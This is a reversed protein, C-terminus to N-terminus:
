ERKRPSEAASTPFKKWSDHLSLKRSTVVNASVSDPRSPSHPLEPRIGADWSFAWESRCCSVSRALRTTGLLKGIMLRPSMCALVTELFKNSREEVLGRLMMSGTIFMSALLLYAFLPSLVSHVYTESTPPQWISVPVALNDIRDATLPFSGWLM